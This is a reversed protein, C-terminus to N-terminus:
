HPDGGKRPCGSGSCRGAGRAHPSPLDKSKDWTIAEIDLIQLGDQGSVEVGVQERLLDLKRVTGQGAPTVVRTGVRPLRRRSDQYVEHEYTM